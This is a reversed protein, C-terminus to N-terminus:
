KYLRYKKQRKSFAEEGGELVCLLRPRLLENELSGSIYSIEGQEDRCAVIVQESDSNIVVNGNNSVVIVQRHQKAQRLARVLEEMIFENDLHDDHSDIIIPNEGQALYIKILVTAKQGLSLRHLRVKKYKVSPLVGLYDSFISNYITLRSITEAKKQNVITSSLLENAKISVASIKKKTPNNALDLMSDTFFSIDSKEEDVERTRMKRLDVLESMTDIFRSNDFILEATFDLDSLIDNKNESFASIIGLYKDRQEVRKNLLQVFLSDRGAKKGALEKKKEAITKLDESIKQIKKEIEKKKDLFKGHEKIGKDKEELDKQFKEIDGITKRLEVRVVMIFKKLDDVGSYEIEGFKQDFKLESALANIRSIQKNFVSFNEDTFKLADKIALGLDTLQTKRDRFETLHKQKAESEKIKEPSLNKSLDDIKAVTDKLDTDLKKSEKKLDVEIKDDTENELDFIEKNICLLNDSIESVEDNINQYDFLLESDKIEGSEFILNNIHDELHAPDEVHKELEGQAVYVITAGEIFSPEKVEKEHERGDQLGLKIKLDKPDLGESIRKVFSNKDNCFARDEYINAILDVLATKGSGKGGTISVLGENLIIKTEKIKLQNDIEGGQIFFNSITQSSKVPTPNNQQIAVRDEPEFLLQKLGEFTLDAKIWCSRLECDQFNTECSHSIDGRKACPYGIYKFEHADSGHICPKLTKFEAIFKEPGEKYPNEGLAWNRTKENSSFLLDSKQTLLKRTQHDRSNWDIGSLDEDAMLVFVYKGGFISDKSTLINTIQSDDVVANMMGVFVDSDSAFKTHEKKLRQGLEILNAEKLKRLKDAQQPDAEYRFDIEHLFKEEIDRASIEESFIIHFNISDQGVFVNSRFEINPLVLIDKIKVVEEASFLQGLKTQNDLYDQKIKKYGDVTFYDTIGVVMIEKDILTKFLKQVYVDWDSGFGNNLVSAPTHVQLDWKRWESGRPYQNSM